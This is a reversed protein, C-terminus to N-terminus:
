VADRIPQFAGIAFEAMERALSSAWRRLQGWRAQPFHRGCHEIRRAYVTGIPNRYPPEFPGLSTYVGWQPLVTSPEADDTWPRMEATREVELYLM